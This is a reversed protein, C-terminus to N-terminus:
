LSQVGNSVMILSIASVRNTGDHAADSVVFFDDKTEKILSSSDM